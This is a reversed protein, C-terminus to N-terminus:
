VKNGKSNGASKRYQSPTMGVKEKFFRAFNGPYEFGCAVFAEAVSLNKNRLVEKLRKIKIEQYYSYPTMGTHKKFLRVLHAPSLCVAAALAAMDFERRWCNELYEKAKAVNPEGQYIRSTFFVSVVYALKGSDQFVPFNLIDTYIAEVDYVSSRSKYWQWFSELPVRIDQILVTEGQFTRRIHDRLGFEENVLSDKLLNYKGLILSPEAVNWAKLVAENIFIIDGKANFIQIPLPFLQLTQFLREEKEWAFVGAVSSGEAPRSGGFGSADAAGQVKGAQDPLAKRYQSPTMGLKKKFLGAFSGSYDAGCLAFAQSISYRRDELAEKIKQIKLEQYYSYPTMGMYKKFLRVLHYRSLGCARIIKDPDFDELWHVDIYEKAKIIDLRSQYIHKTKFLAVVYALAGEENTLPFCTIDQYMENEPTGGQDTAYRSGAEELPARIDYVSLIEGAFVRQLYDALGLKQNIYPDQLVNFRGVIASADPLRFFERFAKNVFLSLGAPLFVEMPLPFLELVAFLDVERMAEDERAEIMNRSYILLLLRAAM